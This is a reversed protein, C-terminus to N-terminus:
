GVNFHKGLLYESWDQADTVLAAPRNFLCGALLLKNIRGMIQQVAPM